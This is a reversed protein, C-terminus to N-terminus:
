AIAPPGVRRSLGTARIARRLRDAAGRGQPRGPLVRRISRAAGAMKGVGDGAHPPGCARPSSGLAATRRAVCTHRSRGTRDMPSHRRDSRSRAPGRGEADAAGRCRDAPRHDHQACQQRPTRDRWGKRRGAPRRLDGSVARRKAQGPQSVRPLERRPDIERRARLRSAAGSRRPWAAAHARDAGSHVEATSPSACAGACSRAHSGAALRGLRLSRAHSRRRARLTSTEEFTGQPNMLTTFGSTM